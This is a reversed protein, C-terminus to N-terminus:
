SVAKICYVSVIFLYGYCCLLPNGVGNTSHSVLTELALRM